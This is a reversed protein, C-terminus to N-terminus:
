TFKESTINAEALQEPMKNSNLDKTLPESYFLYAKLLYFRAALREAYTLYSSYNEFM